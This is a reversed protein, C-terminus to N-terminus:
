SEVQLGKEGDCGFSVEVEIAMVTMVGIYM